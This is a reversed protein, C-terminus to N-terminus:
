VTQDVTVDLPPSYHHRAVDLQSMLDSSNDELQLDARSIKADSTYAVCAISVKAAPPAM